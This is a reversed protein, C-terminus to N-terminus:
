PKAEAELKRLVTRSAFFTTLPGAMAGMRRGREHAPLSSELKEAVVAEAYELTAILLEEYSLTEERGNV